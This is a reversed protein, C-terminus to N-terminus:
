SPLDSRIVSYLIHDRWQGDRFDFGRLIGERTFGAKELSRQGARNGVETSAEVRNFQTHAFLYRVLQRQAQAGLGHGRAEPLLVMGINWCYTHPGTRTRHWSVLGLPREDLTPVLMGNDTTLMGNERWLRRVYGPDHWGFWQHEGVTEPDNTLAELLGLDSERVPRLTVPGDDM